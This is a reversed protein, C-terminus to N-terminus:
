KLKNKNDALVAMHIDEEIEKRKMIKCKEFWTPCGHRFFPTCDPLFTCKACDPDIEHPKCLEEFLEPNTVGDFINGWSKGKPIHECYNFSGDPLIIINSKVNDAMCYNLKLQSYSNRIYNLGLARILDQRAYIADYLPECNETYLEQFLPSLYLSINENNKFRLSMENLFKDIRQINNMDVNVRLSVKINEEALYRIAQMVTEYNNKNSKIYRKRLEYDEKTGDLSVQIFDLLWQTKAEHVLERTFLSANSIMSSTFKINRMKLTNCILRIIHAGVLPEGGFWKLKVLGHNKNKCIFDVLRYATTETMTQFKMGEEFCYICRANCGTTPFIVYSNYGETQKKTSRMSFLTQSYAYTEDYNEEIIYCKNILEILDHQVIFAYNKVEDKLQLLAIWELITLEIIEQTMTHMIFYRKKEKKFFVYLSLRYKGYPNIIHQYIIKETNSDGKKLIKM